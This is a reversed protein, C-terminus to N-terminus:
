WGTGFPLFAAAALILAGVTFLALGPARLVTSIALDAIM